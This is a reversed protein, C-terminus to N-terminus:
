EGPVIWAYRYRKKFVRLSFREGRRHDYLCQHVWRRQCATYKKGVPDSFGLTKIAQENLIVASSDTGFEKSFNRGKALTMGMTNIYDYDVTWQQM